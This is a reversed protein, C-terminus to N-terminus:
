AEAKESESTRRDVTILLRGIYDRDYPASEVHFTVSEQNKSVSGVYANPIEPHIDFGNPLKPVTLPCM